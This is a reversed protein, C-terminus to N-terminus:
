DSLKDEIYEEDILPQVDKFTGMVNFLSKILSLDSDLLYDLTSTWIDTIYDPGVLELGTISDWITNIVNFENLVKQNLYFMEALVKSDQEVAESQLTKQVQDGIMMILFTIMLFMFDSWIQPYDKKFKKWGYKTILATMGLASQALGQFPVNIFEMVAKNISGDTATVETTLVGDSDYYLLNGEKDKLHEWKGITTELPSGMWREIEGPLFTKFQMALRWFIQHQGLPKQENDYFGFMMGIQHKISITDKVSYPTPLEDFQIEGKENRNGYYLQKQNEGVQESMLQQMLSVYLGKEEAYQAKLNDPIAQENTKYQWFIQFRKDKKFDYKLQNNEVSIAEWVGDAMMKAIFISLRNVWDPETTSAYVLQDLIRSWGYQDAITKGAVLGIDLNAIRWKENILNCLKYRKLLRYDKKMALLDKYNSMREGKTITWAKNLLKERETVSLQGLKENQFYGSAALAQIKLYGVVDEKVHLAPRFGIKTFTGINKLEQILAVFNRSSDKAILSDNYLSVRTREMLHTRIDDLEKTEGTQSEVISLVALANTVDNLLDKFIVSKIHEFVFDGALANLNWELMDVSNYVELKESRTEWDAEEYPNVVQLKSIKREKQNLYRSTVDKNEFFNKIRRMRFQLAKKAADWKDDANVISRVYRTFGEESGRIPVLLYQYETNILSIYEELLAQNKELEAYTMKKVSSDFNENGKIRFKNLTWLVVKLYKKQPDTLTSKPDYPNEFVWEKSIKGNSDHRFLPEYMERTGATIRKLTGVPKIYEETAKNLERMVADYEKHITNYGNEFMINIRRTLVEPDAYASAGTLSQFIATSLFGNAEYKDMKGTSLLQWAHKCSAGVNLGIGGDVKEIQADGYGKLIAELQRLKAVLTKVEEEESSNSIDYKEKSKDLQFYQFYQEELQERIRKVCQIKGALDTSHFDDYFNESGSVNVSFDTDFAASFLQSSLDRVLSETLTNFKAKTKLTDYIQKFKEKKDEDSVNDGLIRFSDVFDEYGYNIATSGDLISIASVNGIRIPETESQLHVGLALIARLTEINGRTAFANRSKYQQLQEATLIGNLVDQGHELKTYENKTNLQMGDSLIVIDITQDLLNKFLLINENSLFSNSLNPDNILTWNSACYKRLNRYFRIQNEAYFNDLTAKLRTEKAQRSEESVFISVLEDSIYKLESMKATYEAEIFKDIDVTRIKRYTSPQILDIQNEGNKIIKYSVGDVFSKYIGDKNIYRELLDRKFFEFSIRSVAGTSHIYDRLDHYQQIKTSIEEPTESVVEPFLANLADNVIGNKTAPLKTRPDFISEDSFNQFGRHDYQIKFIFTKIKPASIGSEIIKKYMEIQGRWEMLLDNPTTQELGRTKVDIIHIEGTTKNVLVLDSIGLINKDDFSGLKIEPYYQWELPSYKEQFALRIQKIQSEVDNNTFGEIIKDATKVIISKPRESNRSEKYEQLYNKFERLKEFDSERGFTICNSTITGLDATIYQSQIGFYIERPVANTSANYYFGESSTSYIPESIERGIREKIYKKTTIHEGSHIKDYQQSFGGNAATTTENLATITQDANYYLFKGPTYNEYQSAVLQGVTDYLQGNIQNRLKWGCQHAM